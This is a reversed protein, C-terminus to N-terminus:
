DLEKYSFPNRLLLTLDGANAGFPVISPEEYVPSVVLHQALCHRVFAQYESKPVKPHLYPGRRQWYPRLQKDYIFFHKEKRLPLEAILNYIARTVAASIPAALHCAAREQMASRAADDLDASSYAVIFIDATWPLPPVVILAPVTSWDPSDNQWPRYFSTGDPFAATAASIAESRTHFVQVERASDLLKSVARQLQPECDTAFFGTAGRSLVNKLVTFASGGGWGLIARGGGQYLDTLRVNKWTYLYCGRARRVTGYLSRINQALLDVENM